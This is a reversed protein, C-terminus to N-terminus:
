CKVLRGPVHNHAALSAAFDLEAVYQQKGFTRLPALAM